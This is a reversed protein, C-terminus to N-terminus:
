RGSTRDIQRGRPSQMITRFSSTFGDIELVEEDSSFATGKNIVLWWKVDFVWEM